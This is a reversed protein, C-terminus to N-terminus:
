AAQDRQGLLEDPVRVGFIQAIRVVVIRLLDLQKALGSLAAAQAQAAERQELELRQIEERLQEIKDAARGKGRRPRSTSGDAARGKGRSPNPSDLSM